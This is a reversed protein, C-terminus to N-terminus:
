EHLRTVELVVPRGSVPDTLERLAATLDALIAEYEAGPAVRGDKDRGRVSVRIAGVTDNNPVAFARWGQWDRDGAYWRFLLEDQWRQPLRAKIAYQLWGPLRAKLMRWFGTKAVREGSAARRAPGRGYGLLDLMEPLNWSAHRLPGMGHGAVAMVLVDDGAAEWAAAMAADVAVYVRE